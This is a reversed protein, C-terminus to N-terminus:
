IVIITDKLRQYDIQKLSLIKSQQELTHNILRKVQPDRGNLRKAMLKTGSKLISSMKIKKM